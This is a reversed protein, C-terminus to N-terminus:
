KVCDGKIIGHWVKHTKKTHYQRDPDEVVQLVVVVLWAWEQLLAMKHCQKDGLNALNCRFLHIYQRENEPV